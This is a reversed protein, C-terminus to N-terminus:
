VVPLSDDPVSANRPLATLTPEIFEESARDFWHLDEFLFVAPERASRACTLRRIVDFLQRERAEPGM